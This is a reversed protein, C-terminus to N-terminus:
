KATNLPHLTSQGRFKAFDTVTSYIIPDHHNNVFKIILHRMIIANIPDHHNNVFKIILHRMIIANIPCEM